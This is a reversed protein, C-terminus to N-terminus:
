SIKEVDTRYYYHTPMDSDHYHIILDSDNYLELVKRGGIPKAGHLLITRPSWDSSFMPKPIKNDLSYVIKTNKDLKNNINQKRVYENFHVGEGQNDLRFMVSVDKDSVLNRIYDQTEVIADYCSEFPLLILMPFRDLEELALLLNDITISQSHIRIHPAARNAIKFSLSDSQKVGEVIGLGYKLSRDKYLLLNTDSPKGLEKEILAVGNKHLNLLQNNYVGPIYTEPLFTKLKNYIEQVADDLDFNKGEFAKVIEFLNKESYEFSHIKNERDYSGKDEINRRLEEISSILKKQFTFRIGIEYDGKSNEIIKIWRSRDIARIPIRNKRKADELNPVFEFYDKYDDVKQQALSNQRDTFGLNRIIQKGFSHILNIDSGKLKPFDNDTDLQDIGALYLILDELYLNKRLM